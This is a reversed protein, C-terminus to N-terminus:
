RREWIKDVRSGFIVGLPPQLPHMFFFDSYVRYNPINQYQSRKENDGEKHQIGAVFPLGCFFFDFELPPSVLINDDGFYAVKLEQFFFLLLQILFNGVQWVCSKEPFAPSEGM